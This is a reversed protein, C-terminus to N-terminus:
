NSKKRQIFKPEVVDNEMEEADAAQDRRRLRGPRESKVSNEVKKAGSKWTSKKFLFWAAAIATGLVAFLILNGAPHPAARSFSCYSRTASPPSVAPSTSPTKPEVEPYYDCCWLKEGAANYEVRHNFGGPRPLHPFDALSSSASMLRRRTNYEVCDTKPSLLSRRPTAPPPQQPGVATGSASSIRQLRLRTRAPSPKLLLQLLQSNPPVSNSAGSPFRQGPKVLWDSARAPQDFPGCQPQSSSYNQGSHIPVGYATQGSPPQQFPQGSSGYAFPHSLSDQHFEAPVNFARPVSQVQQLSPVSWPPLYQGPSLGLHAPHSDSAVFKHHLSFPSFQQAIDNEVLLWLPQELQLLLPQKNKAFDTEDFEDKTAIFKFRWTNMFKRGIYVDDTMKAGGVGYFDTFLGEATRRFFLFKYRKRVNTLTQIKRNLGRKTLVEPRFHLNSQMIEQPVYGTYELEDDRPDKGYVIREIFDCIDQVINVEHKCNGSMASPLKTKKRKAAPPANDQEAQDLRGSSSGWKPPELSDAIASQSDFSQGDSNKSKFFDDWEKALFNTGRPAQLSSDEAASGTREM